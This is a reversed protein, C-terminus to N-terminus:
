NSPPLARDYDPGTEDDPTEDVPRLLLEEIDPPVNLDLGNKKADQAAAKLRRMSAHSLRNGDKSLHDLLDQMDPSVTGQKSKLLKLIDEAMEPTVGLRGDASKRRLSKGLEENGSIGEHKATDDAGEDVRAREPHSALYERVEARQYGDLKDLFSAPPERKTKRWNEKILTARKASQCDLLASLTAPAKDEPAKKDFCAPFASALGALLVLWAGLVMGNM